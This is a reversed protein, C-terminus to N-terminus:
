FDRPSKTKSPTYAIILLKPPAPLLVGEVFLSFGSPTVHYKCLFCFVVFCTASTSGGSRERERLLHLKGNGDDTGEEEEEREERRLSPNTRERERERKLGNRKQNRNHIRDLSKRKTQNECPSAEPETKKM